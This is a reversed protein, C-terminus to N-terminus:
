ACWPNQKNFYDIIEKRKHNIGAAVDDGPCCRDFFIEWGDKEWAEKEVVEKKIMKAVTSVTESNFPILLSAVDKASHGEECDSSCIKGQANTHDYGLGLLEVLEKERKKLYKQIKNMKVPLHVFSIGKKTLLTHDGFPKKVSPANTMNGFM